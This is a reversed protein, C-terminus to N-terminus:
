VVSKRDGREELGQGLDEAGGKSLESPPQNDVRERWGDFNDEGKKLVAVMDQKGWEQPNEKGCREEPGSTANEVIAERCWVLDNWPEM